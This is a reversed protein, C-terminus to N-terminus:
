SGIRFAKDAAHHTFGDDDTEEDSIAKSALADTKSATEAENM